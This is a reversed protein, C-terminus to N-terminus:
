DRTISADVPVTSGDPLVYRIDVIAGSSGNRVSCLIKLAGEVVPSVQSCATLLMAVIATILASKTAPSLAKLKRM